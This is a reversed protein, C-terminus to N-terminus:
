EILFIQKKSDDQDIIIAEGVTATPDAGCKPVNQSQVVELTLPGGQWRSTPQPKDNSVETLAVATVGPAEVRCIHLFSTKKLSIYRLALQYVQRSSM